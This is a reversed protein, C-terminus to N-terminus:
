DNEGGVMVESKETALELYQRIKPIGVQDLYSLYGELTLIRNELVRPSLDLNKLDVKELRKVISNLRQVANMINRDAM